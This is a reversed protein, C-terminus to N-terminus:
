RSITDGLDCLIPLTMDAIHCCNTYHINQTICSLSSYNARPTETFIAILLMALATSVTQRPDTSLM